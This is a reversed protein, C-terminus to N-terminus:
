NGGCGTAIQIVIDDDDHIPELSFRTRDMGLNSDSSKGSFIRTKLKKM